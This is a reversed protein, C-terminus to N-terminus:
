NRGEAEADQLDADVTAIFADLEAKRGDHREQLRERVTAVAANDTRGDRLLRNSLQTFDAAERNTVQTVCASADNKVRTANGANVNRIRTSEAAFRNQERLNATEMDLRERLEAATSVAAFTGGGATAVAELARRDQATVDFGIVNVVAEVGTEHVARAAAVPDGGCTELGDSVVFVVQRGESERSLAAGAAEIAAALPTWGTADFSGLATRMADRDLPGPEHVLEVGECSLAKGSEENTGKHGFALLGVESGDPVGDLFQSISQRAGDMKREGGVMGAMSGSADIAIVARVWSEQPVDNTDAPAPGDELVYDAYCSRTDRGSRELHHDFLADADFFERDAVDEAWAISPIAAATGLCLALTLRGIPTM